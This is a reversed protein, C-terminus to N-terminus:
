TRREEVAERLECIVGRVEVRDVLIPRHDRESLREPLTKTRAEDRRARADNQEVRHGPEIRHRTM